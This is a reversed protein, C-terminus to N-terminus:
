RTLDAARMSAGESPGTTAFSLPRLLHGDWTQLPQFALVYFVSDRSIAFNHAHLVAIERLFSGGPAYCQLTADRAAPGDASVLAWLNGTADSNIAMAPYVTLEAEQIDDQTYRHIRTEAVFAWPYGKLRWNLLYVGGTRPPAIDMPLCFAQGEATPTAWLNLFQGDAAFRRIRGRDRDLIYFTNDQTACIAWPFEFQFPFIGHGGGAESGSVTRPTATSRPTTPM